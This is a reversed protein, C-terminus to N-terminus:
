LRPFELLAPLLAKSLEEDLHEADMTAHVVRQITKRVKKEKPPKDIGVWAPTPKLAEYEHGVVVMRCPSWGAQHQVWGAGSPDLAVQEVVEGDKMARRGQSERSPAAYVPWAKVAKPLKVQWLPRIKMAEGVGQCPPVDIPVLEAPQEEKPAAKSAEVGKTAGEEEVDKGEEKEKPSEEEEDDDIDPLLAELKQPPPFSFAVTGLNVRLRGNEGAAAVLCLQTGEPLKLDFATGMPAQFDGNLGFAIIGGPMLIQCCIVDGEQWRDGYPKALDWGQKKEKVEKEEPEEAEEEDENPKPADDFLSFDIESSNSRKKSVRKAKATAEKKEGEEGKEEEPVEEPLKSLDVKRATRGEIVAMRTLITKGAKEEMVALGLIPQTRGLRVVRFEAYASGQTIPFRTFSVGEFEDGLPNFIRSDDHLAFAPVLAKEQYWWTGGGPGKVNVPQDSGPNEQIIEGVQGEKLPGFPADSCTKYLKSLKVKMGKKLRGASKADPPATRIECRKAEWEAGSDVQPKLTNHVAARGIHRARWRGSGADGAKRWSGRLWRDPGLEGEWTSGIWNEASLGALLPLSDELASFTFSVIGKGSMEGGIQLAPPANEPSSGEQLLPGALASGSVRIMSTNGGSSPPFCSFWCNWAHQMSDAGTQLELHWLGGLALGALAKTGTVTGASGDATRWQGTIELGSEAYAVHADVYSSMFGAAVVDFNLDVEASSTEAAKEARGKGQWGAEMLPNPLQQSFSVYNARTSALGAWESDTLPVLGLAKPDVKVVEDEGYWKGGRKGEVHVQGRNYNVNTVKGAEGDELGVGGGFLGFGTFLGSDAPQVVPGKSVKQVMDGTKIETEMSKDEVFEAGAQSFEKLSRAIRLADLAPLGRAVLVDGRSKLDKMARRKCQNQSGPWGIEAWSRGSTAVNCAPRIKSGWFHDVVAQFDEPVVGDCYNEVYERVEQTMKLRVGFRTNQGDARKRSAAGRSPALLLRGSPEMTLLVEAKKEHEAGSFKLHWEGNVLTSYVGLLPFSALSCESISVGKGKLADTVGLSAKQAVQSPSALTVMQRLRASADTDKKQLSPEHYGEPALVGGRWVFLTSGGGGSSTEDIMESDMEGRPMDVLLMRDAKSPLMPVRFWMTLSYKNIRRDSNGNPALQVRQVALGARADFLLFNKGGKTGWSEPILDVVGLAFTDKPLLQGRFDWEGYGEGYAPNM